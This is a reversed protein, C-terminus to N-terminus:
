HASVENDKTAQELREGCKKLGGEGLTERQKAVRAKEEEGTKEM